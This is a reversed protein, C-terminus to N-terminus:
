ITYCNLIKTISVTRAIEAGVNLELESCCLLLGTYIEFMYLIPILYLWAAHANFYKIQMSFIGAHRYKHSENLGIALYIFILIGNSIACNIFSHVMPDTAPFMGVHQTLFHANIKGDLYNEIYLDLLYLINAACIM